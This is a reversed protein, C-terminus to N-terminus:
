ALSNLIRALNIDNKTIGGADHTMLDIVLRNYVNFWEPHHNMKEIEMAARTMFGFAQNFSEFEIERHLKENVVSWGPLNKLEEAIEEPSLRMM